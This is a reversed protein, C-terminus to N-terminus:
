SYGENEARPYAVRSMALRNPLLLLLMLFSLYVLSRSYFYFPPSAISLDGWLLCELGNEFTELLSKEEVEQEQEECLRGGRADLGLLSNLCPM